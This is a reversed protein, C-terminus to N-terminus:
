KVRQITEEVAKTKFNRHILPPRQSIYKSGAANKQLSETAWSPNIALAALGLTSKKLFNRRTTM